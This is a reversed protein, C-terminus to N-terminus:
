EIRLHTEEIEEKAEQSLAKAIDRLSAMGNEAYAIV